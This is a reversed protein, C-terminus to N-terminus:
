IAPLLHGHLGKLLRIAPTRPNAAVIGPLLSMLSKNSQKGKKM